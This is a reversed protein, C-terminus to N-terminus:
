CRGARRKRLHLRVVDKNEDLDVLVITSRLRAPPSLANWFAMCIVRHYQYLSAMVRKARRMSNSRMCRRAPTGPVASLLVRAQIGTEVLSQEIGLRRFAKMANASLIIGAGIRSFAPAQEYVAVPFRQTSSLRCRELRWPGRWHGRNAEKCEDRAEFLRFMRRAMLLETPHKVWLVRAITKEITSM